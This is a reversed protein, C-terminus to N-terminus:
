NCRTVCNVFFCKASPRDPGASFGDLYRLQLLTEVVALKGLADKCDQDTIKWKVDLKIYTKFDKPITETFEMTDFPICGDLLAIGLSKGRVTNCLRCFDKTLEELTKQSDMAASLNSVMGAMKKLWDSSKDDDDDDKPKRHLYEGAKKLSTGLRMYLHQNEGDPGVRFKKITEWAQVMAEGLDFPKIDEASMELFLAELANLVPM